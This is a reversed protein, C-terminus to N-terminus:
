NIAARLDLSGPADSRSRLGNSSSAAIAVIASITGRSPGLQTIAFSPKLAMFLEWQGTILAAMQQNNKRMAAITNSIMADNRRQAINYFEVAENMNDFILSLDYEQEFPIKYKLYSKKIFESFLTKDFYRKKAIVFDYDANSLAVKFLKEIVRITKQLNYLTREEDNRYIKERIYDEFEGVEEFLATLNIDEYITIYSTFKILNEYPKPSIESDEALRMLYTHFDAQSIKGMKFSLSELVLKELERKPLVKSLWGRGLGLATRVGNRWLATRAQSRGERPGPYSQYGIDYVEGHAETM